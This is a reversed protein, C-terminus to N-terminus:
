TPLEEKQSIQALAAHLEPNKPEQHLEEKAPKNRRFEDTVKEFLDRVGKPNHIKALVPQKGGVLYLHVDGYNLLLSIVGRQESGVQVVKDVTFEERSPSLVGKWILVRQDTIIYTEVWWLVLDNYAFYVGTIIVLVLMIVELLAWFSDGSPNIGFLAGVVILGIVSAIFPLAPTILFFKSKRLVAKVKEGQHQGRFVWHRNKGKGVKHARWYGGHERRPTFPDNHAQQAQPANSSM